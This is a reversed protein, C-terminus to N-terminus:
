GFHVGYRNMVNQRIEKIEQEKRKPVIVLVEENEIIIYNSLGDVFVVKDKETRIINGKAELPIFRSNVVTNRDVDQPLEEELACWTGLDNWSFSAPIVFVDPSKEIIGHDISINEASPYTVSLFEPELSTNWFPTGNDFLEYMDPLFERFSHIIQSAKWVFIGSNWLYNGAAVFHSATDFDPKETFKKVPYINESASPNYQIYGYGTNPLSPRIGFTILKNAKEVTKFALNVDSAFNYENHIWHDSPAVIMKAEPDRTYIKMAAMLICPATNRMVPEAVVQEPDIQPLQELIIKKYIENTLIYINGAPVFKELREFTTQMLTKGSGLIDQFQKPHAKKSVPWFRSGVGGAMIVAYNHNKM